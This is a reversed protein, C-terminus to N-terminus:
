TETDTESVTVVSIHQRTTHLLAYPWLSAVCLPASIFCYLEAGRQMAEQQSVDRLQQGQQVYHLKAAFALPTNHMPLCLRTEEISTAVFVPLHAKLRHAVFVSLVIPLNRCKM